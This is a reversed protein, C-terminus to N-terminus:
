VPDADRMVCVLKHIYDPNNALWKLEQKTFSVHDPRRGEYRLGRIETNIRFEMEKDRDNGEWILIM